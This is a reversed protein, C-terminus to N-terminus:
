KVTRVAAELVAIEIRKLLGALVEIRRRLVAQLDARMERQLIALAEVATERIMRPLLVEAALVATTM